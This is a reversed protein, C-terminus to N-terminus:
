VGMAIWVLWAIMAAVLIVAAVNAKWRVLKTKKKLQKRYLGGNQLYLAWVEKPKGGFQEDDCWHQIDDASLSHPNYHQSCRPCIAEIMWLRAGTM